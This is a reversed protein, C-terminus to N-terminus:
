GTKVEASSWRISEISTHKRHVEASVDMHFRISHDKYPIPGKAQAARFVQEKLKFNLFRMLLTRPPTSADRDGRDRHCAKPVSQTSVRFDLVKSICM